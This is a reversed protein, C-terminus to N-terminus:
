EGLGQAVVEVVEVVEVVVLLVVVGLEDGFGAAWARGGSPEWRTSGATWYWKKGRRM